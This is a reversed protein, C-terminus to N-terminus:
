SFVKKKLDTFKKKGGEFDMQGVLTLERTSTVVYARPVAKIQCRKLAWIPSIGVQRALKILPNLDLSAPVPEARLAAM